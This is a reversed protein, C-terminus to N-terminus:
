QAPRASRCADFISDDARGRWVIMAPVLTTNLHNQLDEFRTLFGKAELEANVMENSRAQFERAREADQPPAGVKEYIAIHADRVAQIVEDQSPQAWGAARNVPVTTMAEWANWIDTTSRPSGALDWGMAILLELAPDLEPDAGILEGVGGRARRWAERPIPEVESARLLRILEVAPAEATTGLVHQKVDSEWIGLVWNRVLTLTDAGPEIAELATSLKKAADAGYPIHFAHSFLNLLSESLGFRAACERRQEDADEVAWGVSQSSSACELALKKVELDNLFAIKSM